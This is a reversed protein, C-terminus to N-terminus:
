PWWLWTLVLIYESSQFPQVFVAAFTRNYSYSILLRRAHLTACTELFCVCMGHTEILDSGKEKLKQISLLVVGEKTETEKLMQRREEMAKEITKCGMGGSDIEFKGDTAEANAVSTTDGKVVQPQSSAIDNRTGDSDSTFAGPSAPSGSPREVGKRSLPTNKIHVNDYVDDRSSIISVPKPPEQYINSDDYESGSFSGPKPPRPPKQESVAADSGQAQTPQQVQPKKPSIEVTEYPSVSSSSSRTPRVPPVTQKPAGGSVPMSSMESPKLPRPPPASYESSSQETPMAPMPKAKSLWQPIQM